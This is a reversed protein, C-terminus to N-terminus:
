QPEIPLLLCPGTPCQHLQGANMIKLETASFTPYRMDTGAVAATLNVAPWLSPFAMASGAHTAVMFNRVRAGSSSDDIDTAHGVGFFHGVEHALNFVADAGFLVENTSVSTTGSNVLSVIQQIQTLVKDAFTIRSGGSAGLNNGAIIIKPGVGLQEDVEAVVAIIRDISGTPYESLNKAGTVETVM